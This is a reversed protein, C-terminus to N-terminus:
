KGERKKMKKRKKDVEKTERWKEGWSIKLREKNKEKKRAKGM